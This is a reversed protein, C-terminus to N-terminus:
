FDRGITKANWVHSKLKEESNSKKPPSLARTLCTDLLLLVDREAILKNAAREFTAIDAKEIFWVAAPYSKMEFVLQLEPIHVGANLLSATVFSSGDGRQGAAIM